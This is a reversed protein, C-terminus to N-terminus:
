RGPGFDDSLLRGMEEPSNATLIRGPVGNRAAWWGHSDDHGISYADDWLTWLLDLAKAIDEARMGGAAQPSAADDM